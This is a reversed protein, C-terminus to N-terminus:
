VYSSFRRSRAPAVRALGLARPEHSTCRTVCGRGGTAQLRPPGPRAGPCLPLLWGVLWGGSGSWPTATAETVSGSKRPSSVATTRARHPAVRRERALSITKKTKDLPCRTEGTICVNYSRSIQSARTARHGPTVWTKVWARQFDPLRGGPVPGTPRASWPPWGLISGVHPSTTSPRGPALAGAASRAPAGGSRRAGPAPCGEICHRM